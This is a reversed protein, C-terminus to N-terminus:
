KNLYGLAELKKKDEETLATTSGVVAKNRWSRWWALVRESYTIFIENAPDARNKLEKPDYALNYMEWRSNTVSYLVKLEDLKLGVWIPKKLNALKEMGEGRIAGPYTEFYVIYHKEWSKEGKIYPILNRGRMEKGPEIGAYGLFTPALDLLEVQADIRVGVPIGPGSLGFPIRMSPEYLYRGHGVYGHEGLSEGHDAVFFILSNKRLGLENIKDLLVGIYHDAYAIESDYADIRQQQDTKPANPDKFIFGKHFLYPAHPESYHAWFFFPEKLNEELWKVAQETVGRADRESNFFIWRKKNFNDDYIDFGQDLNSLHAKLPWNSLFAVTTYGHRKLIEALTEAERIMPIGNRTAGIEHPYRSTMMSCFSPNTLPVNTHANTFWVGSQLLRDINPSTNRHYGYISLHDQRLTDVSILILNPKNAGLFFVTSLIAVIVKKSKRMM